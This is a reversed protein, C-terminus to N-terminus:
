SSTRRRQVLLWTAAGAALLGASAPEPVEAGAADYINLTYAISVQTYPAFTMTPFSRLDPLMVQSFTVSDLRITILGISRGILDPGPALGFYSELIGSGGGPFQLPGSRRLDIAGHQHRRVLSNFEGLPTCEALNFCLASGISFRIAAESLAPQNAGHGGGIFREGVGRRALSALAYRRM